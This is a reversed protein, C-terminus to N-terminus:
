QSVSINVAAPKPSDLSSLLMLKIDDAGSLENESFDFLYESQVGGQLVAKQTKLSKLRGGSYVAAALYASQSLDSNVTCRATVSCGSLNKESSVLGGDARELAMNLYCKGGAIVVANKVAQLYGFGSGVNPVLGPGGEAWESVNYCTIIKEQGNEYLKKITNDLLRNFLVPTHGATKWAAPHPDHTYRSTFVNPIVDKDSSFTFSDVLEGYTATENKTDIGKPSYEVDFRLVKDSGKLAAKICDDKTMNNRVFIAAGDYGLSIFRDAIDNYLKVTESVDSGYYGDFTGVVANEEHIYIAAYRKGDKKVCYPHNYKAYIGDITEGWVSRVTAQLKLRDESSIDTSPYAANFTLVYPFSKFNPTNEFLEYLWHHGNAENEWGDNIAADRNASYLIAGAAAYSKLWYCQWDLVVPDDGRYFGLLSQREPDYAVSKDDSVRSHFNWSWDYWTKGGGAAARKSELGFDNYWFPLFDVRTKYEGEFLPPSVLTGSTIKKGASYSEELHNQMLGILNGKEDFNIIPVPSIKNRIVAGQALEIGGSLDLTEGSFLYTGDPYYVRKGLSHLANIVVTSDLAGTNDAGLGAANIVDSNEVDALIMKRVKGGSSVYVSTKQNGAINDKKISFDFNGSGDATTQGIYSAKFLPLKESTNYEATNLESPFLMVTVRDGSEASGCVRVGDAGSFACVAGLEEARVGFSAFASMVATLVFIIKIKKM